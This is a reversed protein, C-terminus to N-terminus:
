LSLGIFISATLGWSLLISTPQYFLCIYSVTYSECLTFGFLIIYNFPYKKGYCYSLFLFLFTGLISCILLGPSHLVFHTISKNAYFSLSMLWTITLQISLLIYIKKIFITKIDKNIDNIDNIPINNELDSYM